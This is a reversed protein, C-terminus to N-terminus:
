PQNPRQQAFRAVLRRLRPQDCNSTRFRQCAKSAAQIHPSSPASTEQEGDLVALRLEIAFDDADAFNDAPARQLAQLLAKADKASGFRFALDSASELPRRTVSDVMTQTSSRHSAWYFNEAALGLGLAILHSVAIATVKVPHRVKANPGADRLRVRALRACHM